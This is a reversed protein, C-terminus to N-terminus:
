LRVGHCRPYEGSWPAMFAMYNGPLLTVYVPEFDEDDDFDEATDPILGFKLGFRGVCFPKAKIDGFVLGPHEALLAEIGKKMTANEPAVNGPLRGARAEGVLESRSGLEEIRADLLDGEASFRYMALFERSQDPHAGCTFPTTIFLGDGNPLRGVWRGHHDDHPIVLVEPPFPGDVAEDESDVQGSGFLSALWRKLM